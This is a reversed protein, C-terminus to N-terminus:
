EVRAEVLKRVPESTLHLEYDGAPIEVFEDGVFGTASTYPICTRYESQPLIGLAGMGDASVNAEAQAWLGFDIGLVADGNPQYLGLGVLEIAGSEEEAADNKVTADVCLITKELNGNLEAGEKLGYQQIFEDHTMRQMGHVQISYGESGLMENIYAGEFPVTEGLGFRETEFRIATANVYAIRM